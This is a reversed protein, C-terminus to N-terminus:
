ELIIWDKLQQLYIKRTETFFAVVEPQKYDPYTWDNFRFEGQRYRYHVDGFIGRNIYIRHDYDKTTALIMKAACVYGPDINVCRLDNKIFKLELQNTSIKIDPLLEAPKLDQFSLFSKQLDNGMEADYYDTFQSFPFVRSIEDVPSILKELSRKVEELDNGSSYTIAAFYKVPPYIRIQGM